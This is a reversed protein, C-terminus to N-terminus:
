DNDKITLNGKCRIELLKAKAEELTSFVFFNEVQWLFYWTNCIRLTYCSENIKDIKASIFWMKYIMSYKKKMTM